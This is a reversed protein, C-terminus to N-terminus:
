LKELRSIVSELEHISANKYRKFFSESALSWNSDGAIGALSRYNGVKANLSNFPPANKSKALEKCLDSAMGRPFGETECKKFILLCKLEFLDTWNSATSYAM